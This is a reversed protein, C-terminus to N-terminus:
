APSWGAACPRDPRRRCPRADARRCSSRPAPWAARRREALAARHRGAIGGADIVASRRQDDGRFRRGLLIAQRRDGANEAAGRGAHRRADHADARRRGRLFSSARRPRVGASKSTMSSLSAKAEGPGRRAARDRCRRRRRRAHVGIAAGDREAMREAHGARADGARRRQFQLQRPPVSRAPSWTCRRRGPCRSRAPVRRFGRHELAFGGRM